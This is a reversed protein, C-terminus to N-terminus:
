NLMIPIYLHFYDGNLLNATFSDQSLFGYDIGTIAWRTGKQIGTIVNVAKLSRGSLSFDFIKENVFNASAHGTVSLIGYEGCIYSENKDITINTVPTVTIATKTTFKSNLEEVQDSLADFEEQSPGPVGMFQAM